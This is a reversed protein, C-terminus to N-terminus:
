GGLGRVWEPLRRRVTEPMREPLADLPFFAAEVVERGDPQPDGSARGTIVHVRNTAGHLQEEIMALEVADELVCGTEERLERIATAVADHGKPIGGSPLMWQGSGYSHRILLVRGEGDVAVIRCGDFM